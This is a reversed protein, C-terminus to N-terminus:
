VTNIFSFFLPRTPPPPPFLNSNMDDKSGQNKGMLKRLKKKKSNRKIPDYAYKQKLHRPVLSDDLQEESLDLNGDLQEDILKVFCSCSTLLKARGKKTQMERALLPWATEMQMEDILNKTIVGQFVPLQYYGSRVYGDENFVQLVTWGLNDTVIKKGKKEKVWKIDIIVILNEDYNVDRYAHFGDLFKPSYQPSDWDHMTTFCVEETLKPDEYYPAPPSLCYICKTLACSGGFGTPLNHLQEISIKFGAESQYKCVFSFEIFQSPRGSLREEIWEILDADEKDELRGGEEEEDEDPHKAMLAADRTVPEERDRRATYLKREAASPLCRTSDYRGKKYDKMKQILGADMMEEPTGFDKESLVALGDPSKPAPVIRLLLTASPVRRSGTFAEATLDEDTSPPRQFLPLQFNGANLAYEQVQSHEPQSGDLTNFVNLCCYGVVRMKRPQSEICDIRCLITATPNAIGDGRYEARLRYKPSYASDDLGSIADFEAEQDPVFDFDTTMVKMTVKSITVGDPLFRAGDVYIDYGDEGKKFLPDIKPKSKYEIWAEEASEEEDMDKDSGSEGGSNERDKSAGDGSGHQSEDGGNGSGGQPEIASNSLQVKLRGGDIPDEDTNIEVPMDFLDLDHEGEELIAATDPGGEAEEFMHKYGWCFAEDEEEARDFVEFIVIGERSAVIGEFELRDDWEWRVGEELGRDKAGEPGIEECTSTDQTARPKQATTTDDENDYISVRVFFDGNDEDGLLLNNVNIGIKMTGTTSLDDRSEKTGKSISSKADDDGGSSSSEDDSRREDDDESSMKRAKEKRSSKGRRSRDSKRDRRARERERDRGRGGREQGRRKVAHEEEPSEPRLGRPFKYLHQTIAPDVGMAAATDSQAAKVVRLYLTMHAQEPVPLPNGAAFQQVNVPPRQLPLKIPGEQLDLSSSSRPLVFLDLATWGISQTKAKSGPGAAPQMVWQLEMVLRLDNLPAVKQFQRRTAFICHATTPDDAECECVPLGKVRTKAAQKDYFCYVLQLMSFRKPVGLIYDFYVVFGAVPDYPGTDRGWGGEDNPLEKAIQKRMRAAMLQRKQDAMWQEHEQQRLKEAQAKELEEQLHKMRQEQALRDMEFKMRTVAELQQMQLKYLASDKPLAEMAQIAKQQQESYRALRALGDNDDPGHNDPLSAVGGGHQGAAASSSGGLGMLRSSLMEMAKTFERRQQDIRSRERDKSLQEIEHRLRINDHDLTDRGHAVMGTYSPVIPSGLPQGLRDTLPPSAGYVNGALQGYSGGVSRQQPQRRANQGAWQGGAHNGQGTSAEKELQLIQNWLIPDKGGGGRYMEKLKAIEEGFPDDESRGRPSIHQEHTPHLALLKANGAGGRVGDIRKVAEGEEDGKGSGTCVDSVNEPDAYRIEMNNQGGPRGVGPLCAGRSGTEGAGALKELEDRAQTLAGPPPKGEAAARYAREPGTKLWEDLFGEAEMAFPLASNIGKPRLNRADEEQQKLDAQHNQLLNQHEAKMQELALEDDKLKANVRDVLVSVTDPGEQISTSIAGGAGSISGAGGGPDVKMLRSVLKDREAHLKGREAALAAAREGRAQALALQEQKQDSRKKMAGTKWVDEIKQQQQRFGEEQARINDELLRIEKTLEEERAALAEREKALGALERKREQELMGLRSQDIEQLERKVRERELRARLEGEKRKELKKMLDRIETEEQNKRARLKQQKIKLRRLEEAKESERRMTIQKRLRDMEMENERFQVRIGDLSMKGVRTDEEDLGRGKLYQRVDEFSMVTGGNNNKSQKTLTNQLIAPDYYDSNVCFKTRHNAFEEETSFTM